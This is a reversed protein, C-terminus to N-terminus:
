IKNWIVAPKTKDTFTYKFIGKCTYEKDDPHKLFVRVYPTDSGRTEAWENRKDEDTFVCRESWVGNRLEPHYENRYGVDTKGIQVFQNWIGDNDLFGGNGMDGKGRGYYQKGDEPKLKSTYINTKQIFNRGEAMTKFKRGIAHDNLNITEM